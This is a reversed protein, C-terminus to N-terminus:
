VGPAPGSVPLVLTVTFHVLPVVNVTDNFAPEVGPSAKACRKIALPAAVRCYLRNVVEPPAAMKPSPLVPVEVTPPVPAPTDFAFATSMGTNPENGSLAAM